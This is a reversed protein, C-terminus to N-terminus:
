LFLINSCAIRTKDAAHIVVSRNGFFHTSQRSWNLSVDQYVERFEQTPKIENSIAGFKGSLDGAQCNAPDKPDCKNTEGRAMPDFHGKAQACEKVDTVLAPVQLEHIHYSYPGKGEPFNALRVEIRSSQEGTFDFQIFGDPRELGSPFFAFARPEFSRQATPAASALALLFFFM